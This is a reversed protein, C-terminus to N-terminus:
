NDKNKYIIKYHKGCDNNYKHKLCVEDIYLCGICDKDAGYIMIINNDQTNLKLSKCYIILGNSNIVIDNM